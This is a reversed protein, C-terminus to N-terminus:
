VADVEAFAGEVLIWKVGGMDEASLFCVLRPGECVLMRIM